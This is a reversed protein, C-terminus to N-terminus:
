TGVQANVKAQVESWNFTPCSGCGSSESPDTVGASLGQFPIAVEGFVSGCVKAETLISRPEQERNTSM